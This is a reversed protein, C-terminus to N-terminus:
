SGSWLALVALGPFAVPSSVDGLRSRVRSLKRKFSGLRMFLTKWPLASVSTTASTNPSAAKGDRRQLTHVDATLEWGTTRVTNFLEGKNQQGFTVSQSFRETHDQGLYQHVTAIDPCGQMGLPFM